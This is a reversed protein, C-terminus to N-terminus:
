GGSGSAGLEGSGRLAAASERPGSRACTVMWGFVQWGEGRSLGMMIEGVTTLFHFVILVTRESWSVGDYSCCKGPPKPCRIDLNTLKKGPFPAFFRCAKSNPLHLLRQSRSKPSLCAPWTSKRKLCCGTRRCSIGMCMLLQKTKHAHFRRKKLAFQHRLIMKNQIQGNVM